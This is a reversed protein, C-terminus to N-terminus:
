ITANPYNRRVADAFEKEFDYEWDNQIKYQLAAQFLVKTEFIAKVQKVAINIAMDSACPIEFIRILSNLVYIYQNTAKLAKSRASGGPLMSYQSLSYVDRYMVLAIQDFTNICYQIAKDAVTSGGEYAARKAAEIAINFNHTFTAGKKYNLNELANKLEQMDREASASQSLTNNHIKSGCKQCFESDDPIVSNCNVCKM